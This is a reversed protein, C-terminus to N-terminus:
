CGPTTAVMFVGIAAISLGGTFAFLAGAPRSVVLGPLRLGRGVETM